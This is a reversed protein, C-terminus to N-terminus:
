SACCLIFPILFIGPLKDLNLDGIASKHVSSSAISADFASLVNDDAIRMPDQTWTRAVGDACASVVDQTDQSSAVCWVGSPHTITQACEGHKWIKM